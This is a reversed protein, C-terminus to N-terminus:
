EERESILKLSFGLQQLPVMLFCALNAIAETFTPLKAVEVVETADIVEKEWIGAKLEFRPNKISFKHLIQAVTNEESFSFIFINSGHLFEAIKEFGLKSAALKLLRNKYVKVKANEGRLQNRLEELWEVSLGEYNAVFFSGAMRLSQEIEKVILEKEFRFRSM